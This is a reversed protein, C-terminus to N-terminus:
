SVASLKSILSPYRKERLKIYKSTYSVWPEIQKLGHKKDFANLQGQLIDYEVEHKEMFHEELESIKLFYRCCRCFGVEIGEQLEENSTM